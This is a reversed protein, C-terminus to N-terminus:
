FESGPGVCVTTGMHKAHAERKRRIIIVRMFEEDHVLSGLGVIITRIMM